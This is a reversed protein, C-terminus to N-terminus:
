HYCESSIRYQGCLNILTVNQSKQNLSFSLFGFRAIKGPTLM